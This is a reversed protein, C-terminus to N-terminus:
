HRSDSYELLDPRSFSLDDDTRHWECDDFLAEEHEELFCCIGKGSISFLDGREEGLRRLAEWALEPVPQLGEPPHPLDEEIVPDVRLGWYSDQSNHFRKRNYRGQISLWFWRLAGGDEAFALLYSRTDLWPLRARSDIKREAHVLQFQEERFPVIRKTNV